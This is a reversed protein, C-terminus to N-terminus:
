REKQRASAHVNDGVFSFVDGFATQFLRGTNSKAVEAMIRKVIIDLLRDISIGVAPMGTAPDRASLPPCLEAGTVALEFIVIPRAWGSSSGDGDAGLGRGSSRESVLASTARVADDGVGGKAVLIDKTFIRGERLLLSGLRIDDAKKAVWGAKKEPPKQLFAIQGKIDSVNKNVVKGLERMVSMGSEKKSKWDKGEASAGGGAKAAVKQTHLQKLNQVLGDKQNMLASQLGRSGGQNAAKGIKSVAGVLKEVIKNAEDEKERMPAGEERVGVLDGREEERGDSSMSRTVATGEEDIEGLEQRKRRLRHYEEMIAAHDPIDLSADLLHFNFINKRKEVFVQVDEVLVTYVDFFTHNLLRGIRPLQIVSAFNLAAEIRGVRVLCPSDWEWDDRDKNHVILDQVVVRGRWLDVRADSLTVLAGNMNKSLEKETVQLVYRRLAGTQHLFSIAATLVFTGRLLLLSLSSIFPQVISQVVPLTGTASLFLLASCVLSHSFIPYQGPSTSWFAFYNPAPIGQSMKAGSKATTASGATAM